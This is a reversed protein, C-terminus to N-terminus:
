TSPFAVLQYRFAWKWALQYHTIESQAMLEVLEKKRFSRLISLLGDKRAMPSIRMGWCVLQFLYYALPNRQLDNILLGKVGAERIHTLLKIQEADELHHLFLGCLVLDFDKLPCDCFVDAVKFSIEPFATAAERAIEITHPNADIGVLELELDQKRAWRAIGRLTDGSGCGLDVLRLPQAPAPAQHKLWTKLANISILNGGLWRNVWTIDKLAKNLMDGSIGFDDM